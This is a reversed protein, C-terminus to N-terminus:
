KQFNHYNELFSVTKRPVSKAIEAVAKKLQEIAGDIDENNIIVFDSKPIKDKDELQSKFRKEADKESINDRNTLRKLKIIKSATILIIYDFCKETHTEFLLPIEFFINSDAEAVYKDMLSFVGPHIIKNLQKIKEKNGFVEAGLIKRNIKGKFVTKSGFEKQLKNIVSKEELVKHAIKDADLINFGNEKLWNSLLSKGSAIGGTIGIILKKNKIM